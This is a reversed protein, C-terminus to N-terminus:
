QLNDSYSLIVYETHSNFMKICVLNDFNTTSTFAKFMQFTPLIQIFMLPRTTNTSSASLVVYIYLQEYVFKWSFSFSTQVKLFISLFCPFYANTFMVYFLIVVYARIIPNTFLFLTSHNGLTIMSVIMNRCVIGTLFNVSHM